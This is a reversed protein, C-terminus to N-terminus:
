DARVGLEQNVLGTGESGFGGHGARWMAECQLRRVQLRHELWFPEMSVTREYRLQALSFVSEKAMDWFCPCRAPCKPHPGLSGACERAGYGQCTQEDM